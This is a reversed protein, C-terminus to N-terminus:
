PGIQLGRRRARRIALAETRSMVEGSNLNLARTLRLFIELSPTSTGKELGQVYSLNVEAENALTEQSMKAAKRSKLLVEGFCNGVLHGFATKRPRAM